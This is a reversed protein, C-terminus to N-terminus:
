LRQRMVIYRGTWRLADFDPGLGALAADAQELLEDVRRRAADMGFLHPYTAKDSARDSGGRKGTVDTPGEVDLIDDQIQFALGVTDAFLEFAHVIATPVNTCRTPALVSARLLRGTKLRYIHELEAADIRRGEAALDLSQGGTMGNSGCAQALLAVLEVRTAPRGAFAPDLALIEFALPQM